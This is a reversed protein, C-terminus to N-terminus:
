HIVHDQHRGITQKPQNKVVSFVICNEAMKNEEEENTVLAAILRTKLFIRAM